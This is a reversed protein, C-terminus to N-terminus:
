DGLQPPQDLNLIPSILPNTEMLSDGFMGGSTGMQPSVRTGRSQSSVKLLGYDLQPLESGATQLIKLIKLLKL